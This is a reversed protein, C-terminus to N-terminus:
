FNQNVLYMEVSNVYKDCVQCLYQNNDDNLAKKICVYCYVHKCGDGKFNIACHVMTPPQAECIGCKNIEVNQKNHIANTSRNLSFKKRLKAQIKKFDFLGEALKFLSFYSQWLLEREFLKHNFSRMFQEKKYIPRLKIFREWLNLYRGNLLFIMYNMFTICKLMVKVGDFLKDIRRFREFELNSEDPQGENNNQRNFKRKLNTLLTLLYKLLDPLKELLWEDMCYVIMHLLKKVKTQDRYYWDFISQGVTQGNKYYTYYWLLCKIGTFIEVHYKQFFSSQIYKFYDQNISQKLNVILAEDLESADLQTVRLVRYDVSSAYNNSTM